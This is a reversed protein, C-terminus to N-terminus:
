FLSGWPQEWNHFKEQNLLVLGCCETVSIAMVKWNWDQKGEM